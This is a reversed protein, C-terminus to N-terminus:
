GQLRAHHSAMTAEVEFTLIQFGSLHNLAEIMDKEIIDIERFKLQVTCSQRTMGSACFLRLVRLVERSTSSHLIMFINQM